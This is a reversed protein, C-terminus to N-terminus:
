RVSVVSFEADLHQTNFGTTMEQAGGRFRVRRLRPSLLTGGMEDESLAWKIQKVIAELNKESLVIHPMISGWVEKMAAGDILHYTNYSELWMQLQDDLEDFGSGDAFSYAFIQYQIRPDDDTAQRIYDYVKNVLDIATTNGNSKSVVSVVQLRWEAPEDEAVDYYVDEKSLLTKQKSSTVGDRPFQMVNPNPKGGKYIQPFWAVDDAASYAEKALTKELSDEKAGAEELVDSSQNEDEFMTDPGLSEMLRKFEELPPPEVGLEFEKQDIEIGDIVLAKKEEPEKEKKSKAPRGRKKPAINIPDSVSTEELSVDLDTESLSKIELALDEDIVGNDDSPIPSGGGNNLAGDESGEISDVTGIEAASVADRENLEIDDYELDEVSDFSALEGKVQTVQTETRMEMPLNSDGSMLVMEEADMDKELLQIYEQLDFGESGLDLGELAQRMDDETLPVDAAPDTIGEVNPAGITDATGTPMSLDEKDMLEATIATIDPEIVPYSTALDEDADNLSTGGSLGASFEDSEKKLRGRSVTTKGKGGKASVKKTPNNEDKKTRGAAKKGPPRGRAKKPPSPGVSDDDEEKARM